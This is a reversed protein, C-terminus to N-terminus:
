KVIKAIEGPKLGYASESTSIMHYVVDNNRGCVWYGTIQQIPKKGWFVVDSDASEDRTIYKVGKPMGPRLKLTKM